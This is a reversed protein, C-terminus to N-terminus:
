VKDTNNGDIWQDFNKEGQIIYFDIENSDLTFWNILVESGNNLHNSIYYSKDDGLTENDTIKDYVEISLPPLENFFFTSVNGSEVTLNISQTNRLDILFTEEMELEFDINHSIPSFLLFHSGLFLVLLLM